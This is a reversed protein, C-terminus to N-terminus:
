EEDPLLSKDTEVPRTLDKKKKVGHLYPILISDPDDPALEAAVRVVEAKDRLGGQDYQNLLTQVQPPTVKPPEYDYAVAQRLAQAFRMEEPSADPGVLARLRKESIRDAKAAKRDITTQVREQQVAGRINRQTPAVMEEALTERKGELAQLAALAEIRRPDLARRVRASVQGGVQPIGVLTRYKSLDSDVMAQIDSADMMPNADGTSIQDALTAERIKKMERETIVGDDSLADLISGGRATEAWENIEDAKQRDSLPRGERSSAEGETAEDKLKDFDTRQMGGRSSNRAIESAINQEIQEASQPRGGVITAIASDAVARSIGLRDTAEKLRRGMSIRQEETATESLMLNLHQKAEGAGSLANVVAQDRAMATGGAGSTVTNMTDILANIGADQVRTLTYRGRATEGAQIDMKDRERQDQAVAENERIELEAKALVYKHLSNEDDIGGQARALVLEHTEADLKQLYEKLRDAEAALAEDREKADTYRLQMEEQIEMWRREYRMRSTKIILEGLREGVTPAQLRALPQTGPILRVPSGGVGQLSQDRAEAGRAVPTEGIIDAYSIAM